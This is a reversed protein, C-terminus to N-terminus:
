RRLTIKTFDVMNAPVPLVEDRRTLGEGPMGELIVDHGVSLTSGEEFRGGLCLGIGLMVNRTSMM